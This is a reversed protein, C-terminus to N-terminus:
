RVDEPFVLQLADWEAASGSDATVTADGPLREWLESSLRQPDIPLWELMAVAEMVTWWDTVNAVITGRRSRASMQPLLPILARLTATADGVLNEEYPYRMGIFKGDIDIEVARAQDFEPLFQSYPFSSGITLLTDCDRMMEYSPRTGLLGIAGTVYPRDDG